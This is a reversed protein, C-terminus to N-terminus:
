LKIAKIQNIVFMCEKCTIGGRIVTKEKYEFRSIDSIDHGCVTRRKDAQVVACWGMLVVQRDEDETLKVLLNM